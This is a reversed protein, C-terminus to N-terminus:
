VGPHCNENEDENENIISQYLTYVNQSNIDSRYKTLADQTGIQSMTKMHERNSLLYSIKHSLDCPNGYEYLLGNTGHSIIEPNASTNSAIVSLGHMMYEVTVRGFAEHKSLMLGINMDCLLDNVDNRAGTMIVHQTLNNSEVYRIVEQAYDTNNYGIIYLQFHTIGQDTLQKIAKVAELQNKNPEVRGVICIKIIDTDHNPWRTVIPPKVGNLIVDIRNEPILKGFEQRVNNSVAIIRESKSYVWKQYEQGLLPHADFSLSAVERFHWVHPIRLLKSLFLGTDIISSNSHVLDFHKNRLLLFLHIANWINFLLFYIKYLIDTRNSMFCTQRHALGPIAREKMVDDIKRLVDAHRIKPYVIFPEVGHNDRLETIMQIMSNNAGSM